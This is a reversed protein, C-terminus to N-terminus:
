LLLMRRIIITWHAYKWRAFYTRNFLHLATTPSNEILELITERICLVYCKILVLCMVRMFLDCVTGHLCACLACADFLIM